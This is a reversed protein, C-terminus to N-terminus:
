EVSERREEVALSEPEEPEEVPDVSDEDVGDLPEEVLLLEEPEESADQASACAPPRARAKRGM